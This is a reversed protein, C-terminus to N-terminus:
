ERGELWRASLLLAAAALYPLGLVLWTISQNHSAYFGTFVGLGAATLILLAIALRERWFSLICGALAIVGILALLIGATELTDMLAGGILMIMLFLASAFGVSRGFFKMAMALNYQNDDTM